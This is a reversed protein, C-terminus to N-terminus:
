LTGNGWKGSFSYNSVAKNYEEKKAAILFLYM